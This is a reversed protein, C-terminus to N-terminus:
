TCSPPSCINNGHRLVIKKGALRNTFLLVDIQTYKDKEKNWGTALEQLLSKKSSGEKSVLDGFTLSDEARTHKVQIFVKAGDSYTVVVDDLGMSVDAQLEAYEIGSDPNLMEIVYKLCVSWEYWYPDGMGPKTGSTYKM